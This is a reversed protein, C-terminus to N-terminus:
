VTLTIEIRTGAQKESQVKIEGDLLNVRAKINKWGIGKTNEIHDTDMGKGNDSISLLIKQEQQMIDLKIQSAGSHRIMNNVTEQVIRYISLEYEKGFHQQRVPEAINVTIQTNGISNVKEALTELAPILGFNLDEPILNHSINRVETITNDILGITQQLRTDPGPLASLNMKALSLM